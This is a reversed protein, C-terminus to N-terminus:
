SIQIALIDSFWTTGSATALPSVVGARFVVSGYLNLGCVNIKQSIQYFDRQYEAVNFKM